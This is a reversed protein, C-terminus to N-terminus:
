ISLFIKMRNLDMIRRLFYPFVEEGNDQGLHHVVAQCADIQAGVLDFLTNDM